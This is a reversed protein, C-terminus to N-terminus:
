NDIIDSIVTTEPGVSATVTVHRVIIIDLGPLDDTDPRSETWRQSPVPAATGTQGGTSM